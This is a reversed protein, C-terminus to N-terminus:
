FNNFDQLWSAWFQLSKLHNETASGMVLKAVVLPDDLHILVVECGQFLNSEIYQQFV